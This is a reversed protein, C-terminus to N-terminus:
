GRRLRGTGHPDQRPAGKLLIDRLFVVESPEDSSQLLRDVIVRASASALAGTLRLRLRLARQFGGASIAAELVRPSPAVRVLQDLCEYALLDEGQLEHRLLQWPLDLPSSPLADGVRRSCPDGLM